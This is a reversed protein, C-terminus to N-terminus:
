CSKEQRSREAEVPDEEPTDEQARVTRPRLPQSSTCGNDQNQCYSETVPQPTHSTKEPGAMSCRHWATTASYPKKAVPM